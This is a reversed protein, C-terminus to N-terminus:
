IVRPVAYYDNVIRNSEPYYKAIDKTFDFFQKLDMNDPQFQASLYNDLNNGGVPDDNKQIFENPMVAVTVDDEFNESIRPKFLIYLILLLLVLFLLKRM